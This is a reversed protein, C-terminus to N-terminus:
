GASLRSNAPSFQRTQRASAMKTSSNLPIGALSFIDPCAPTTRAQARNGRNPTLPRRLPHPRDIPAHAAGNGTRKPPAIEPAKQRDQQIRGQGIRTLNQTADCGLKQKKGQLFCPPNGAPAYHLELFYRQRGRGQTSPSTKGCRPRTPSSVGKRTENQPGGMWKASPM